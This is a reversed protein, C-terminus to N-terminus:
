DYKELAEEYKRKTKKKRQYERAKYYEDWARAQKRTEKLDIEGDRFMKDLAYMNMAKTLENSEQKLLKEGFYLDFYEDPPIDKNVLSQYKYANSLMKYIKGYKFAAEKIDFKSVIGKDLGIADLTEQSLGMEYLNVKQSKWIRIRARQNLWRILAGAPMFYTADIIFKPFGIDATLTDKKYKESRVLDSTFKGIDVLLSAAPILNEFFYQWNEGSYIWFVDGNFRKLLPLFNRVSFKKYEDPDDSGKVLAFVALIFMLQFMGFLVASRANKKDNEALDRFKIKHGDYQKILTEFYENMNNFYGASIPGTRSEEKILISELKRQREEVSKNNYIALKALLKVTPIIGSRVMLNKDIHYPAMHSWAYAPLWKKFQMFAKGENHVWWPALAVKRYDGHIDEVRWLIMRRRWNTLMNKQDILNADKDYANWEKETMLGVFIPFQNLKEAWEMLKYGYNEIKRLDVGLVRIEKDLQDFLVDDVINALGFRKAMAMAKIPNTLMRTMGRRYAAPERIVDLIQGIGLNVGQTKISGMIKNLSNVRNAFDVINSLGQGSFMDGEPSKSYLIYEGWESLYKVIHKAPEDGTKTYMNIMYELPSMLDKMYYRFIMSDLAKAEAEVFHKTAYSTKGHGIVPMTKKSMKLSEDLNNIDSGKEYIKEARRIYENLLGVKGAVSITGPIKMLHRYRKGLWQRRMNRDKMDLAIFGEKIERLTILGADKDKVFQGDVIKLVNLKIHDYKQPKLREYLVPGWMDGFREIAEPRTWYVSVVPIRVMLNNEVNNAQQPDFKRRYEYLKELFERIVPESDLAKEGPTRWFLEGNVSITAKRYNIKDKGFKNLIRHMEYTEETYDQARDEAGVTFMSLGVFKNELMRQPMGLRIGKLTDFDSWVAKQNSTIIYYANLTMPFPQAPVDTQNEKAIVDALFANFQIEKIFNALHGVIVNDLSSLEIYLDSTAKTDSLMQEANAITDFMKMIHRIKRISRDRLKEQVKDLTGESYENIIKNFDFTRELDAQKEFNYRPVYSDKGPDEVGEPLADFIKLAGSTGSPLKLHVDRGSEQNRVLISRSKKRVDLVTYFYVDREIEGFMNPVDYVMMIEDGQKLTSYGEEHVIYEQDEYTLKHWRRATAEKNYIFKFRKNVETMPFNVDLNKIFDSRNLKLYMANWFLYEFPMAKSGYLDDDTFDHELLWTKIFGFEAVRLSEIDERKINKLDGIMQKWFHYALISDEQMNKAIGSRELMDRVEPYNKDFDDRIVRSFAMMNDALERTKQNRPIRVYNNAIRASEIKGNKISRIIPIIRIQDVKNKVGPQNPDIQEELMNGYINTQILHDMFKSQSMNQFPAKLPGFSKRYSSLPKMEDDAFEADTTKFDYVIQTGDGIDVILDVFGGVEHKKSVLHQEVYFIADPYMDLIDKKIQRFESVLHYYNNLDTFQEKEEQTIIRNGFVSEAIHHIVTGKEAFQDYFGILRKMYDDARGAKLGEKTLAAYDSKYKEIQKEAALRGEFPQTKFLNVVGTSSILPKGGISHTHTQEDFGVDDHKNNNTVMNKVVADAYNTNTKINDSNKWIAYALNDALNYRKKSGFMAKIARWFRKLHYIFRDILNGRLHIKAIDVGARGIDIIIAEEIDEQSSNPYAEKYLDIMELKVPNDEPLAEWYIHAYEHYQTSQVAKDPDIFVADGFAHGIAEHSMQFGKVGWKEVFEYFADRNEFYRVGPYTKKLHDFIFKSLEEDETMLAEGIADNPMMDRLNSAIPPKDPFVEKVRKEYQSIMEKSWPIIKIGKYHDNKYDNLAYLDFEHMNGFEIIDDNPSIHEIAAMADYSVSFDITAMANYDFPTAYKPHTDAMARLDANRSGRLTHQMIQYKERASLGEVDWEYLQNYMRKSLHIRYDESLLNFYSGRWTSTSTGWKSITYFAFLDALEPDSYFIDNFSERIETLRKDPIDKHQDDNSIKLTRRGREKFVMINQLFKNDPFKDRYVGINDILKKEVASLTSKVELARLVAATNLGYSIAKLEDEKIYRKGKGSMIKYIARYIERGTTSYEFTDKYIFEEAIVLANNAIAFETIPLGEENFLNKVNIFDLKNLRMKEYLQKAIQLEVVSNPMKQTLSYFKRIDAVERAAHYFKMLNKVDVQSYSGLLKNEIDKMSSDRVGGDNRRLLTAFDRVLPSTFYRSVKDIHNIIATRDKYDVTKDGVIAIFFMQATKENCGIFELVPNKANDFAMNLINAIEIKTLGLVDEKIGTLVIKDDEGVDLTLQYKFDIGKNNILGYVTNMDTFMGKMRVGAMNEERSQNWSLPNLINYIRDKKYRNAIHDLSRTNISANIKDNMDPNMYDQAIIMLLENSIGKKSGGTIINGSDSLYFTWNFRQDGDFDSGSRLHSEKDIMTFNAGPIHYMLRGVTHSHPDDAPVRTSMYIQGPIIGDRETIEWEMLNGDLDFLDIYKKKNELVHKIAENPKGKFRTEAYRQGVTGSAIDPLLIHKKDKTLRRGQLIGDPDPIEQMTTRNIPVELSKRTIHSAIIKRIMNAFGPEYPTMGSELMRKLEENAHEGLNEELWDLKAENVTKGNIENILDNIVILQLDNIRDAIVDGHPLIMMNALMQSSMTADRPITSHRLDQQIYTDKTYRTMISGLPIVPNKLENGEVDWLDIMMVNKSRKGGANEYIKTTSGFSLRDIGNSRMFKRITAYKSDKFTDALFDINIINGKTLGRFNSEPDISTHLAKVSSLVEMGETFQKSFTYGMSVQMKDAYEGTMFEVGDFIEWDGFRDNVLAFQYTESLGGEITSLLRYGSSSSSGARKILNVMDNEYSSMEGHFLQIMDKMNLAFNFVFDKALERRKETRFKLKEAGSMPKGESSLPFSPLFQDFFSQNYNIFNTLVWDVTQEFDPFDKILDNYAEESIIRKPVEMFYLSPRDALQGMWANYSNGLQFFEYLQMIWLDEFSLDEASVKKEASTNAIGDIIVIEADRGEKFYFETIANKVHSNRIDEAIVFMMNDMVFSSFNDGKVNNGTLALDEVNKSSTSLKYLNSMVNYEESGQTFFQILYEKIEDPTRQQKNEDVFTKYLLNFMLNSQYRPYNRRYTDHALLNDYTVYDTLIDADRSSHALTENTRQSFYQSWIDTSIGTIESLLEIDMQHQTRRLREREEASRNLYGRFRENRNNRYERLRMEVSSFGPDYGLYRYSAVTAWFSDVYDEYTDPPNLLKMSGDSLLNNRGRAMFGFTKVLRVSNYFEFMSLAAGLSSQELTEVIKDTVHDQGKLSNLYERFQAENHVEAQFRGTKAIKYFTKQVTNESVDAAEAIERWLATYGKLKNAIKQAAEFTVGATDPFVLDDLSIQVKKIKSKLRKAKTYTDLLLKKNKRIMAKWVLKEEESMSETDDIGNILTELLDGRSIDQIDTIANLAEILGNKINEKDEDTLDDVFGEVDMKHLGTGKGGFLMDHMIMEESIQNSIAVDYRSALDSTLAIVNELVSNKAPRLGLLELIKRVIAVFVNPAKYVDIDLPIAALYSAFEPNSFAEAVFEHIDIISELIADESYNDIVYDYVAQLANVAEIDLDNVFHRLNPDNSLVIDIKQSTISHITEHAFVHSFFYKPTFWQKDKRSGNKLTAYGAAMEPISILIRNFRSSYDAPWQSKKNIFTVTSGTRKTYDAILSLIQKTINSEPYEIYKAIDNYSYIRGIEIDHDKFFRNIYIEFEKIHNGIIEIHDKMSIPIGHIDKLMREDVVRSLEILQSDTLNYPFVKYYNPNESIDNKIDDLSRNLDDVETELVRMVAETDTLEKKTHEESLKPFLEDQYADQKQQIEDINRRIDNLGMVSLLIDMFQNEIDTSDGIGHLLHPYTSFFSSENILDLKLGKTKHCWIYQRLERISRKGKHKIFFSTAIRNRGLFFQYVAEEFSGPERSIREMDKKGIQWGKRIGLKKVKGLYPPFGEISMQVPKGYGAKAPTTKIGHPRVPVLNMQRASKIISSAFQQGAKKSRNEEVAKINREARFDTIQVSGISKGDLVIDIKDGYPIGYQDVHELLPNWEAQKILRLSFKRNNIIANSIKEKDEKSTNLDVYGRITRGDDLKIEIVDVKKGKGIYSATGELVNGRSLESQLKKNKDPIPLKEFEDAAIDEFEIIHDELIAQKELLQSIEENPNTINGKDDYEAISELRSNVNELLTKLTNIDPELIQGSDTDVAILNNEVLDPYQATIRDNEEKIEKKEEESFKGANQQLIEQDTEVPTEVTMDLISKQTEAITEVMKQQGMKQTVLMATVSQEPTLKGRYSDFLKDLRDSEEKSLTGDSKHIINGIENYLKAPLKVNFEKGTPTTGKIHVNKGITSSLTFDATKMIPSFAAVTLFTHLQDRRWEKNAPGKINKPDALGAMYYNAVEELYEEMIGHWGAAKSLKGVFHRIDTVGKSKMFGSVAASKLLQENTLNKLKGKLRKSFKMYGGLRETFIESYADWWGRAIAKGTGKGTGFEVDAVLKGLEPDAILNVNDTAYEAINSLYQQPIALTQGAAGLASTAIKQATIKKGGLTFLKKTGFDKLAKKGIASVGTYAGRTLAFQAIYPVMDIVGKSVIYAGSENGLSQLYNMTAFTELMKKEGFTIPENEELKQVVQKVHMKEIMEKTMLTFLNQADTTKFARGIDTIGARAEPYSLLRELDKKTEKLTTYDRRMTNFWQYVNDRGYKEILNDLNGYQSKAVQQPIPYPSININGGTIDFSREFGADVISEEYYRLAENVQSLQHNIFLKAGEPTLRGDSDYMFKPLLNSLIRNKIDTRDIPEEGEKTEIKLNAVFDSAAKDLMKIKKDFNAIRYENKDLTESYIKDVDEQAAYKLKQKEGWIMNAYSMISQPTNNDLKLKEGLDLQDELGGIYVRWATRESGIENIYDYDRIGDPNNFSGIGFSRLAKQKEENSIPKLEEKLREQEARLAKIQNSKEKIKIKDDIAEIGPVAIRFASKKNFYKRVDEQERQLKNIEDDIDRIRQQKEGDHMMQIEEEDPEYVKEPESYMEETIIPTAAEFRDEFSLEEEKDYVPSITKFKDDSTYLPTAAEFREDLSKKISTDQM